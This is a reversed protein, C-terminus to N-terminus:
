NKLKLKELERATQELALEKYFDRVKVSVMIKSVDFKKIVLGELSRARSLAVYTMGEAFISSLDVVVRDLTLGQSKHISQSYSLNLPIQSRAALTDPKSKGKDIKSDYIEWTSYTLTEKKETRDFKVVVSFKELSVVVGCDGNYYNSESKLNKLLMVRAGVKLVLTSPAICDKLLKEKGFNTAKYVFEKTTIQNLKNENHYDKERNLSYLFTYNDFNTNTDIEVDKEKIFKKVRKSLFGIRIDNLVNCFDIDTQRFIKTLVINYFKCYKWTESEFAFKPEKEKDICKLQFFDGVILLQIGGFPLNKRKSARCISNMVDFIGASLMSVEDIVLLDVTEIEERLKRTIYKIDSPSKIYIPIQFYSHITFGGVNIAAIGTPAVVIVKKSNARYEAITEM